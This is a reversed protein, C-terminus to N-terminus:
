RGIGSDTKESPHAKSGKKGEGGGREPKAKGLTDKTMPQLPNEIDKQVNPVVGKKAAGLVLVDRTTQTGRTEKGKKAGAV